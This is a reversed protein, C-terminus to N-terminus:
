MLETPNSKLAFLSEFTNGAAADASLLAHGYTNMTIKISSHGLRESIIKAHVGKAILLTTPTHRLDHLRIYRVGARETFERWWKTPTTPYFHKGDEKCFLWEREHETWKDGM